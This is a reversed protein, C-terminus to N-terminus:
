KKRDTGHHCGKNKLACSKVNLIHCGFVPTSITTQVTSGDLIAYLTDSNDNDGVHGRSATIGGYFKLDGLSDYLLVSGSTTTGFLAIEGGNDELHRQYSNPNIFKQKQAAAHLATKSWDESESPPRYFVTTVNVKSKTRALIKELEM